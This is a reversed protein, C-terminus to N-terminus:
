DPGPEPERRRLGLLGGAIALAAGGIELPIAAGAHEKAGSFDEALVGVKRTDPLDIAVAIVLVVAGVAIMAIAAARARGVAAGWGMVLVVLALLLLAYRHQEGGTISCKDAKEGALDSCTATIVTTHRLNSLEAAILLIAAAVALAFVAWGLRGSARLRAAAAAAFGGNRARIGKSDEGASRAASTREAEPEAL